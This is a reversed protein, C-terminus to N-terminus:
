ISPIRPVAPVPFAILWDRVLLDTQFLAPVAVTVPVPVFAEGAGNLLATISHTETM